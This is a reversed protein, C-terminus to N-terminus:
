LPTRSYLIREHLYTSNCLFFTNDTSPVINFLKLIESQKCPDQLNAVRHLLGCYVLFDALLESIETASTRSIDPMDNFYYDYCMLASISEGNSAFKKGLLRLGKSNSATIARFM